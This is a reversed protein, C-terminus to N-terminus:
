KIFLLISFCVTLQRKSVVEETASSYLASMLAACVTADPCMSEGSPLRLMSTAHLELFLSEMSESVHEVRSILWPNKEGTILMLIMFRLPM